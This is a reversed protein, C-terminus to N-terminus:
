IAELASICIRIWKAESSNHVRATNRGLRGNDERFRCFRVFTHLANKASEVLGSDHCKSLLRWIRICGMAGYRRHM